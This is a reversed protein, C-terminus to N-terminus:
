LSAMIKAPRANAPDINAPKGFGAALNGFCKSAVRAMM